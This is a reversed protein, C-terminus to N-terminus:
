TTSGATGALSLGTGDFEVWNRPTERLLLRVLRVGEPLVPLIQQWIAVVFNETTPNQGALWPVEVNLNRHDVQDIVVAHVREKLTGLDMVYGTEPNVPGEVTVELEYNHGHGHPNACSGFVEANQADSWDPRFLRHGANFHLLRTVRVTPVPM